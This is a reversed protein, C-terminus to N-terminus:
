CGQNKGIEDSDDSIGQQLPQEHHFEQGDVIFFNCSGDSQLPRIFEVHSLKIIQSYQVQVRIFKM